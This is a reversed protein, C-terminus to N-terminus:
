YGQEKLRRYSQCGYVYGGDCAKGYWEKATSKNQRVFDGVEYIQGMELQAFVYNQDIAKNLWYLYEARDKPVGWGYKYRTALVAQWEAVGQEALYKIAEVKEIEAKSKIDAEAKSTKQAIPKIYEMAISSVMLGFSLSLFILANTVINKLLQMTTIKRLISKINLDTRQLAM